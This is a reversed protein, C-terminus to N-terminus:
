FAIRSPVFRPVFLMSKQFNKEENARLGPIRFDNSTDENEECFKQKTGLEFRSVVCENVIDKITKGDAELYTESKLMDCVSM